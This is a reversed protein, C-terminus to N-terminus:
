LCAPLGNVYKQSLERGALEGFRGILASNLKDEWTRAAEILNNEIDKVNFEINSDNVRVFYHTRALVSESFYTTFEVPETSGM